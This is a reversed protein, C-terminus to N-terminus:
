PFHCVVILALSSPHDTELFRDSNRLSLRMISFLRAYSGHDVCRTLILIRLETLPFLGLNRGVFSWWAFFPSSWWSLSLRGRAWCSHFIWFWNPSVFLSCPFSSRFRSFRTSWTSEEKVYSIVNASIRGLNLSDTMFAYSLVFSGTSCRSVNSDHIFSWSSRSTILHQENENM